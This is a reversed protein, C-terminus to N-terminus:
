FLHPLQDAPIGKGQDTVSLKTCDKLEKVELVIMINASKFDIYM